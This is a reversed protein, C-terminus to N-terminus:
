RVRLTLALAAASLAASGGLVLAANALCLGFSPQADHILGGSIASCYISDSLVLRDDQSQVRLLPRGVCMLGTSWNFVIFTVLLGCLTKDRSLKAM